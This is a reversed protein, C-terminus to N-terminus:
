EADVLAQVASIQADSTVKSADYGVKAPNDAAMDAYGEPQVPLGDGKLYALKAAKDGAVSIAQLESDTLLAM